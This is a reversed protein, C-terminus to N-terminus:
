PLCHCLLLHNLTPVGSLTTQIQTKRADGSILQRVKPFNRVVGLKQNRFPLFLFLSLVERMTKNHLYFVQYEKPMNYSSVTYGSSSSSCKNAFINSCIRNTKILKRTLIPRLSRDMKLEAKDFTYIRHRSKIKQQQICIGLQELVTQQFVIKEEM